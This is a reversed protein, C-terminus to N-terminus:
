KPSTPTTPANPSPSLPSTPTAPTAGSNPQGSVADKGFSGASQSGIGGFAAGKAYMQEIRPDYLFEWTEYTTQGGPNLISEGTRATGVGMILGGGGLPSSAGSSTSSSGPTAPADPPPSAGPTGPTAVTAGSFGAALGSTAGVKSTGGLTSGGATPSTAGGFGTGLQSATGLGSGAGTTNIGALPQGFFGKVSTKNEGVHILRWDAQGTLPDIYKQRLFRVNNSKELADMSGPYQKPFKRQYLRIARVYQQARHMSEVEKDRRLNRAVVPAAIALTILVITMMVIVALLM